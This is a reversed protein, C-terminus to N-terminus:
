KPQALDFGEENSMVKPQKNVSGVWRRVECYGIGFGFSSM